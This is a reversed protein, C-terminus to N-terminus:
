LPRRNMEEAKWRQYRMMDLVSSQSEPQESQFRVETDPIGQSFQDGLFQLQQERPTARLKAIFARQKEETPSLSEVGQGWADGAPPRVKNTVKGKNFVNTVDKFRDMGWDATGSLLGAYASFLQEWSPDSTQTPDDGQLIPLGFQRALVKGAYYAPAVAGVALAAHPGVNRAIDQGFIYHDAPALVDQADKVGADMERLKVIQSPTLKRLEEPTMDFLRKHLSDLSEVGQGWSDDM